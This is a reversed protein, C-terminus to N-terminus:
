SLCALRRDIVQIAERNMRRALSRFYGAIKPDRLKEEDKWANTGAAYAFVATLPAFALAESILEDPLLQGWPTRYANVFQTELAATTGLERRFHQLLYEFSFFPPGVYAEAWDLFTCVDESVIANGPNLDLHGLTNPIQLDELLTLSDEM